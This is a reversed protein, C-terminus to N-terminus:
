IIYPIFIIIAIIISTVASLLVMGAAVDKALKAKEHFTDTLLDVVAEVATNTAEVVLVLSITFIIVIWDTRSIRLYFGLCIALLTALLHIQFNPQSTAIYTLGEFAHKFSITHRHIRSM